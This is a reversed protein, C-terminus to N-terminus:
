VAKVRRWLQEEIAARGKECGQRRRGEGKAPTTPKGDRGCNAPNDADCANLPSGQRALSPAPPQLLGYRPRIMKAWALQLLDLDTEV